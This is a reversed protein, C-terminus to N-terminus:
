NYFANNGSLLRSAEVALPSADLIEDAAVGALPCGTINRAADGSAAKPALGEAALAEMVDPIAGISLWHLQINQRVTIDALSRAYRTSLDAIKRLQSSRL